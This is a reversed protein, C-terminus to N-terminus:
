VFTRVRGFLQQSVRIEQCVNETLQQLAELGNITASHVTGVGYFALPILDPSRAPWDDPDQNVPVRKLTNTIGQGFFPAAAERYM